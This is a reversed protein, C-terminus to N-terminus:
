RRCPNPFGLSGKHDQHETGPVCKAGPPPAFDLLASTRDNLPLREYVVYRWVLKTKGLRNRIFVRQERPLYTEADVIIESREVEGRSTRVTPSVLRYARKGAIEVEGAVKLRGSAQSEKLGTVPDFPDVGPAGEGGAHAGFGSESIQNTRADYRLAPGGLRGPRRQGAFDDYLRGRRGDRLAYTRWHLRGSNTHWTEYIIKPHPGPFEESRMSPIMAAHYVADPHSLAAVAKALVNPAPGDDSDLLSIAAFIALAAAATAVAFRPWRRRRSARHEEVPTALLRELLADSERREAPGLQELEAAPDAAALRDMLDHATSM